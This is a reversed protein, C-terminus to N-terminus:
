EAAQSNNRAYPDTEFGVVGAKKLAQIRDEDYGTAALIEQCHEGLLPAGRRQAAPSREFRAANRVQRLLGAAHHASEIITEMAKVQPHEIVQNRTLAPACPVGEGELM